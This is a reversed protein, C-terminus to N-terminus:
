NLKKFNIKLNEGMGAKTKIVNASGKFLFFWNKLNHGKMFYKHRIESFFRLKIHESPRSCYVVMM